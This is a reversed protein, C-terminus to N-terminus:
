SMLESKRPRGPGRERQPPTDAVYAEIEPDEHLAFVARMLHFRSTLGLKKRIRQVQERVTLPRIGLRDAVEADTIGTMLERLVKVQGPTLTLLGAKARALLDPPLPQVLASL